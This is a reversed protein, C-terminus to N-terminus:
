VSMKSTILIDIFFFRTLDMCDMPSIDRMM